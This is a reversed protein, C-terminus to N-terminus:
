PEDAQAADSRWRSPPAAALEDELRALAADFQLGQDPTLAPTGKAVSDSSLVGRRALGRKLAALSRKGEPFRYTAAFKQFCAELQDMREVDGASAVRWARQWERPWLNAPGSVVGAPM